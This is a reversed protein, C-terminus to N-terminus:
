SGKKSWLLLLSTTNKYAQYDKLKGWRADASAELPPIGSVFRLIVFLFVPSILGILRDATSLVGYCYLYVGLWVLIEGFYNPHRSYRWLGQNIWKDHNSPKTKFVYKQYDATAEIVLGILCILIALLPPNHGTQDHTLTLAAALMIIWVSVAQTLWFGGFKVLNNRRGDFRKDRGRKITRYLLFGGIRVAWIVILALLLRSFTSSKSSRALALSALAIFSVAYTLDTFRDSQLHYAIVFFVLNIFLSVILLSLM